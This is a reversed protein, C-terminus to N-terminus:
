NVADDNGRVQPSCLWFPRIIVPNPSEGIGITACNESRPYSISPRHIEAHGKFLSLPFEKNTGDFSDQWFRALSRTSPM